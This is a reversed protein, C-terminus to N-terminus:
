PWVWATYGALSMKVLQPLLGDKEDLLLQEMRQWRPAGDFREVASVVAPNSLTATSVATGLKDTPLVDKNLWGYSRAILLKRSVDMFDDTVGMSKSADVFVIVRALEGITRRHHLVAGALILVIFFVAEARLLPLLWRSHGTQGRVERRYLWWALGALALAFAVALWVGWDGLFRLDTVTRVTM